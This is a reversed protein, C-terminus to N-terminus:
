AVKPSADGTKKRHSKIEAHSDPLNKEDVEYESVESVVWGTNWINNEKIKITKGIKSFEKPIFCIQYLNDKQLKCQIYKM